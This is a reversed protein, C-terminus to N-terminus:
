KQAQREAWKAEVEFIFRSPLQNELIQKVDRSQPLQLDLSLHLAQEATNLYEKKFTHWLNEDGPRPYYPDNLFFAEVCQKVGEKDADIRRCQNFDLCWIHILRKHSNFGRVPVWVETGPKTRDMQEKTPFTTHVETPASGLVFEVDRADVRAVWHMVALTQAMAQAFVKTDLDLNEMQNKHLMFNRLSFFMSPRESRNKGLYLRVLSDTNAKDAKATERIREPCYLETLSNRVIEPVPFIREAKLVAPYNEFHHLTDNTPFNGRNEQWWEKRTPGIWDFIRPIHVSIGLSAMAKFAEYIATHSRAEFWLTENADGAHSNRKLM